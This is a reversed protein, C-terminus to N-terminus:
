EKVLGCSTNEEVLGGGGGGGACVWSFSILQGKIIVPNEKRLIEM